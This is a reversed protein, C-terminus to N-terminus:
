GCSGGRPAVPHSGRRCGMTGPPCRRRHFVEPLSPVVTKTGNLLRASRAVRTGSPRQTARAATGVTAGADIPSPATTLELGALTVGFTALPATWLSRWTPPVMYAPPADLETLVGAPTLGPPVKARLLRTAKLAEVPTTTENAGLTLPSTQAM